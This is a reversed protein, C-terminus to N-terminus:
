CHLSIVAIRAQLAVDASSLNRVVDFLMNSTCILRRFDAQEACVELIGVVPILLQTNDSKLLKELLSVVGASPAHHCALSCARSAGCKLLAEKNKSSKSCSWLAM